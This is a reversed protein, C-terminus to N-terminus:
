LLKQLHNAAVNLKKLNIKADTLSSASERVCQNQQNMEDFVQRIILAQQRSHQSIQQTTVSIQAIAALLNDMNKTSGCAAIQFPSNANHQIDEVLANVQDASKQGQQALTRMKLVVVDLCHCDWGPRQVEVGANLALLNTQNALDTVRDVVNYIQAIHESLYLLKQGIQEVQVGISEAQEFSKESSQSLHQLISLTESLVETQQSTLSQQTQLAHTIEKSSSTLSDVIEHFSHAIRQAIGVSIASALIVVALSGVWLWHSLTLIATQTDQEHIAQRQNETAIFDDLVQTLEVALTQSEEAAFARIARETNNAQALSILYRNLTDIQQGLDRINDLRERQQADELRGELFKASDSFLLAGTEYAALFDSDPNLIFSASYRQMQSIAFVIQESAAVIKRNAADTDVKNQVTQTQWSVVAAFSISLLLPVSYGLLIRTRLKFPKFM